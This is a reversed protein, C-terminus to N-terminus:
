PRAPAPAPPAPAAVTPAVLAGRRPAALWVLVIGLTASIAAMVLAAQYSGTQDFLWGGLVPGLAAGVAMFTGLIGSLAGLAPGKAMAATMYATLAGMRAAFGLAFLAAYLFLLGDDGPQVVALVGIGVILAGTGVTFAWEGGWRDALYGLVVMGLAACAGAFGLATAARAPAFGVDVMHAVGHVVLFQVAVTGPLTSLALLWFRPRRLVVALSPGALRPGAPATAAGDPLLGLDEPRRRQALANLPAIGGVFLAALGLFGAQWGAQAVVWNTLPALMLMGIGVGSAALGVALGRRRAFWNSIIVTQTNPVLPALGIGVLVGLGLYLQWPEQSVAALTLGVSTLVAAGAFLRRPGWRDLLAGLPVGVMAWLIYSLSIAGAVVSRSWGHGDAVPVLLVGFAARTGLAVSVTLFAVAVVTWGYFWRPQESVASRSEEVPRLTTATTATPQM